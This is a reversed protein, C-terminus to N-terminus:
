AIIQWICWKIASTCVVSHVCQAGNHFAYFFSLFIENLVRLCNMFTELNFYYYNTQRRQQNNIWSRRKSWNWLHLWLIENWEIPSIGVSCYNLQKCLQSVWERERSKKLKSKRLGLWKKQAVPNRKLFRRKSKSPSIQSTIYKSISKYRMKM